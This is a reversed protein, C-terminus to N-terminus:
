VRDPDATCRTNVHPYGKTKSHHLKKPTLRVKSAVLSHNTDCTASHYSRTHLVCKLDASRTIIVLHLQHWHRSRPHKWYVRHFEKGQFCTNNVCEMPCCLELLRQGNREGHWHRPSRPLIPWTGSDAGVRANFDGLLQIGETSPIRSIAEDLATYLKLMTKPTQHLAYISLLNVLCTCYTSTSIRLAFIEETSGTLTEIVTTLSNRM